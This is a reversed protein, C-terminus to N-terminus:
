QSNKGNNRTCFTPFIYLIEPFCMEIEQLLITIKFITNRNVIGNGSNYGTDTRCFKVLAKNVPHTVAM